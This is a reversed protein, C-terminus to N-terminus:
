GNQTVRKESNAVNPRIRECSSTRLEPWNCMSSVHPRAHSNACVLRTRNTDCHTSIRWGAGRKCSHVKERFHTRGSRRCQLCCVGTRMERRCCGIAQRSYDQGSYRASGPSQRPPLPSRCWTQCRRSRAACRPRNYRLHTAFDVDVVVGRSAVCACVEHLGNLM